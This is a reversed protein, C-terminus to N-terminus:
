GRKREKEEEEERDRGGKEWNRGEVEKDRGGKEGQRERMGEPRKVM